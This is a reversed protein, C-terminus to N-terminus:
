SLGLQQIFSTNFIAPLIEVLESSPFIVASEQKENYNQETFNSRCSVCSKAEPWFMKM